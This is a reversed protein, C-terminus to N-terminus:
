KRTLYLLILITALVLASILGIWFKKGPRARQSFPPQIWESWDRSYGGCVYFDIGAETIAIEPGKPGEKLSIAGDMILMDKLTDVESPDIDKTNRGFDRLAVTAEPERCLSQLLTDLKEYLTAGTLIPQM